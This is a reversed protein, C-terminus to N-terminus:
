KLDPFTNKSSEVNTILTSKKDFTIEYRYKGFLTQGNHSYGLILNAEKM